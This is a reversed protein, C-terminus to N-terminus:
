AKLKTAKPKLSQGADITAKRATVGSTTFYLLHLRLGARLRESGRVTEYLLCNWVLFFLFLFWNWVIHCRQASRDCLRSSPIVHWSFVQAALPRGPKFYPFPPIPKIRPPATLFINSFPIKVNAWSHWAHTRMEASIATFDLFFLGLKIEDEKRREACVRECFFGVTSTLSLGFTLSGYLLSLISM